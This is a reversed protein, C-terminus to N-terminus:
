RWQCLRHRHNFGFGGAYKNNEKENKWKKIQFIIKVFTFDKQMANKYFRGIMSFGIGIPVIVPYGPMACLGAPSYTFFIMPYFRCYM